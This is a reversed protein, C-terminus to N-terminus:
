SLVTEGLDSAYRPESLICICSVLGNTISAIILDIWDYGDTMTKCDVEIVMMRNEYTAETLSIAGDSDNALAALTEAGDSGIDVATYTYDCALAATAAADTAGQKLTLAAAGDVTGDFVLIFTAHGFNKVCVSDGTITGSMDAACTFVPVIKTLECLRM